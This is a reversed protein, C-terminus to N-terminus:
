RRIGHSPAEALRINRPIVTPAQRRFTGLEAAVNLALTNRPDYMTRLLGEIELKPNLHARVKKITQM